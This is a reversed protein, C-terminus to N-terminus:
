SKSEPCACYGHICADSKTPIRVCELGSDRQADASQRQVVRLAQGAVGVAIHQQMGNGIGQQAGHGGAIDAAKERRAIRAPLVGVGGDKQIKRLILQAVCAVADHVDVGRQHQGRGLNEGDGPLHPSANGIQQADADVLDADLGLSGFAHVQVVHRLTVGHSQHFARLLGVLQGAHTRHNLRLALQFVHDFVQETGYVAHGLLPRDRRHIVRLPPM